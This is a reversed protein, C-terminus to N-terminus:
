RPSRCVLDLLLWPGARRTSTLWGMTQHAQGSRGCSSLGTRPWLPGKLAYCRLELGRVAAITLHAVASISVPITWRGGRLLREGTRTWRRERPALRIPAKRRRRRRTIGARWVEIWQRLRDFLRERNRGFEDLFDVRAAAVERQQLLLDQLAAEIGAAVLELAM